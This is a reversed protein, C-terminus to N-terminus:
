GHAVVGPVVRRTAPTGLTQLTRRLLLAALVVHAGVYAVAAGELGFLWTALLVLPTAVALAQLVSVAGSRQRHAAELISILVLTLFWPPISFAVIQLVPVSPEYDPGFLRPVLVPALVYLAAAAFVGLMVTYRVLDRAVPALEATSRRALRTMVPLAAMPVNSLALALNYVSGFWAADAPGRLTGVFLLAQRDLLLVGVLTLGFAVSARALRAWRAPRWGYRPRIGLQTLLVYGLVLIVATATAYVAAVWVVSHTVLAALISGVAIASMHLSLLVAQPRMRGRGRLVAGILLLYAQGAGFLALLLYLGGSQTAADLVAGALLGLPLAPLRLLVADGVLAGADEAAGAIERVLFDDVGPNVCLGFLM